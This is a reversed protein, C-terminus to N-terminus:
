RDLISIYEELVTIGRGHMDAAAETGVWRLHWPEHTYGTLGEAGAPYRVIFGHRWVNEAAWAGAPTRAFCAQLACANDPTGIDVALGTQHESAGAPASIRGAEEAGYIQTYSEVLGAQQDYPRYGSVATMGIGASRAAALLDTLDAAAM